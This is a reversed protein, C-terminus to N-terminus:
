FSCRKMPESTCGKVNVRRLRPPVDTVLENDTLNAAAHALPIFIRSSVCRQGGIHTPEIERDQLARSIASHQDHALKIVTSSLNQYM